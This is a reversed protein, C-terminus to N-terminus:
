IALTFVVATTSPCRSHKCPDLSEIAGDVVVPLSEPDCMAMVLVYIGSEEIDHRTIGNQALYHVTIDIQLVCLSM